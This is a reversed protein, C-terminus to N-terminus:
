IDSRLLRTVMLMKSYTSVIDDAAMKEVKEGTADAHVNIFAEKTLFEGRLYILLVIRMM